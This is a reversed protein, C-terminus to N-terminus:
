NIHTKSISLQYIIDSCQDVMQKDKALEAKKLTNKVDDFVLTFIKQMLNRHAINIEKEYFDTDVEKSGHINEINYVLREDVTFVGSDLEQICTDIDPTFHPHYEAQIKGLIGDKYETIKTKIKEYIDPRTAGDSTPQSSNLQQTYIYLLAKLEALAQRLGVVRDQGEPIVVSGQRIVSEINFTGRSSNNGRESAEYRQIEGYIGDLSMEFVDAIRKTFHEKDVSNDLSAVLPILKELTDKKGSRSSIDSKSLVYEIVHMATKLAHVFVGKNELILSAPDENKPLLAVKVELGHKLALSWAKITAKMGAQDADYVLMLNNTYRKLLRLHEDTLATGSTAVTQDFGEQHCLLLDMQGEVLLAFKWKRMGEKAKHLGYLVQSKNFIPTDPSNLYKPEGKDIIRASIAVPKGTVDFIPFTIRGRFFDYTNGRVRHTDQDSERVKLLGAAVLDEVITREHYTASVRAEVFQWLDPAYGIGWHLITEDKLGRKHLYELAAKGSEHKLEEGYVAVAAHMAAFVRKKVQDEEIAKPDRQKSNEWDSEPLGSKDFLVKLAERFDLREFQQVFEIM